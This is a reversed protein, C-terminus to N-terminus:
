GLFPKLYAKGFVASQLPPLPAIEFVALGDFAVERLTEGLLQWAENTTKGQGPMFHDDNETARDSDHVHLHVIHQRFLDLFEQMPYSTPNPDWPRNLHGTDMCIKLGPVNDMFYKLNAFDPGVEIGNELAIYVDKAAAYEVLDRCRDLDYHEITRAQQVALSSGSQAREYAEEAARQQTIFAANHIVIVKGGLAAIGDVQKRQTATDIANIAHLSVDTFGDLAAKVRQLGAGLLDRENFYYPYIEIGLGADRIDAIVQELTPFNYASRLTLGTYNWLSIGYRLNM